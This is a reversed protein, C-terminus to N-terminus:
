LRPPIPKIIPRAELVGAYQRRNHIVNGLMQAHVLLLGAATFSVDSSMVVTDRMRGWAYMVQAFDGMFRTFLTDFLDHEDEQDMGHKFTKRILDKVAKKKRLELPMPNNKIRGLKESRARDYTAVDFMYRNRKYIVNGITVKTVNSIISFEMNQSDVAVRNEMYADYDAHDHMWGSDAVTPTAVLRNETPINKYSVCAPDLDTIRCADSMFQTERPVFDLLDFQKIRDDSLAFDRLTHEMHEIRIEPYRERDRIRLFGCIVDACFESSVNVGRAVVRCLKYFDDSNIEISGDKTKWYDHLVDCIFVLIFRKQLEETDLTLSYKGVSERQM